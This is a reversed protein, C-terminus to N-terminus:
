EAAKDKEFIEANNKKHFEQLDKIVMPDMKSIIEAFHEDSLVEKAIEYFEANYRTEVQFVGKQRRIIERDITHYHYEMLEFERARQGQVRGSFDAYDRCFREMRLRMRNKVHELKSVGDRVLDVYVRQDLGNEGEVICDLSTKHNNRSASKPSPRSM